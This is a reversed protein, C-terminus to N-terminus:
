LDELQSAAKEVDSQIELGLSSDDEEAALSILEAIDAVRKEMGRWRDVMKRSEALRRM